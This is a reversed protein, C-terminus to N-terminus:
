LYLYYDKLLQNFETTYNGPNTCITLESNKTETSQTSGKVLMRFPAHNPTQKVLVLTEVYLENQSCLVEM